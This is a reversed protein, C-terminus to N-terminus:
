LIFKLFCNSQADGKKLVRLFVNRIYLRHFKSKNAIPSDESTKNQELRNPNIPQLKVGCAM